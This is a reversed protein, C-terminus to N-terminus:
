FAIFMQVQLDNIKGDKVNKDKLMETLGKKYCVSIDVGGFDYGAKVFLPM